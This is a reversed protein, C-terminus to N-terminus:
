AISTLVMYRGMPNPNLIPNQKPNTASKSNNSYYTCLAHTVLFLTNNMKNNKKKM